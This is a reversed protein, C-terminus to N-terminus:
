NRLVLTISTIFFVNVIGFATLGAAANGELIDEWWTWEGDFAAPDCRYDAPKNNIAHAHERFYELRELMDNLIKSNTYKEYLNQQECPDTDLDFLCPSELPNCAVGQTSDNYLCHVSAADRLQKINLNASSTLKHLEQWVPSSKVLQEYIPSRPDIRATDNLSRQSLWDDYLGEQTTGNIYKWKGKSYVEYQFIDDINHVIEREVAEYGYKLASWLNLGDIKLYELDLAIGAAAALTPLVDAIYIPQKWITGLKDM